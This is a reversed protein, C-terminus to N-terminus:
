DPLDAETQPGAQHPFRQLKTTAAHVGSSQVKINHESCLALLSGYAKSDKQSPITRAQKPLRQALQRAIQMSESDQHGHAILIAALQGTLKLNGQSSGDVGRGSFTGTTPWTLMRQIFLDRLGLMSNIEPKKINMKAEYDRFKMPGIMEAFKRVAAAAVQRDMNPPNVELRAFVWSIAGWGCWGYPDSEDQRFVSLKPVGWQESLNNFAPNPIEFRCRYTLTSTDRNMIAPIWHNDYHLMVISTPRAQSQDLLTWQQHCFWKSENHEWKFIGRIFTETTNELIRMIYSMEDDSVVHGFEWLQQFRCSTSWPDESHPAQSVVAATRQKVEEFSAALVHGMNLNPMTLNMHQSNPPTEAVFPLTASPEEESEEAKQIIQLDVPGFFPYDWPTDFGSGRIVMLNPHPTVLQFVRTGRQVWHERRTGDRSIVIKVMNHSDEWHMVLVSLNQLLESNQAQNAYRDHVLALRTSPGMLVQEAFMISEVEQRPSFEVIKQTITQNHVHVLMIESESPYRPWDFPVDSSVHQTFGILEKPDYRNGMADSWEFLDLHKGQFTWQALCQDPRCALSIGEDIGMILIRNDVVMAHKTESYFRFTEPIIQREAILHGDPAIASTRNLAPHLKTEAEIVQTLMTDDDCMLEVPPEPKDDTEMEMLFRKRKPGMVQVPESAASATSDADDEITAPIASSTGQQQIRTIYIWQDDWEMRINQTNMCQKTHDAIVKPVDVSEVWPFVFRWAKLGQLLAILAHTEAICNGVAHHALMNARPLCTRVSMGMAGLIEAAHFFRAQNADTRKIAGYIYKGSSNQMINHQNGYGAMCTGASHIQSSRTTRADFASERDSSMMAAAMQPPMHKRQLYLNLTEDDLYLDQILETPMHFWRGMNWLNPKHTNVCKRYPDEMPTTPIMTDGAQKIVMLLRSREVPQVHSLAYTGMAVIELGCFGLIERLRGFLNPDTRLTSVNELLICRHGYRAALLLVNALTYGDACNWGRQLGGASFSRCSSSITIFDPSEDAIQEWVSTKNIDDVICNVKKDTPKDRGNVNRQWMMALDKEIEVGGITTVPFNAENLYSIARSWGGVGGCFLEYAKLNGSEVLRTQLLILNQHDARWIKNEVWEAGLWRIAACTTFARRLKRLWQMKVSSALASPARSFDFQITRQEGCPMTVVVYEHHVEHVTAVFGVQFLRPDCGADVMFQGTDHKQFKSM